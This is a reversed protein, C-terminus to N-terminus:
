RRRFHLQRPTGTGVDLIDRPAEIPAAYLGNMVQRLFFHQMDLRNLDRDDSPLMYAADTHYRRNGLWLFRSGSGTQAITSAAARRKRGFWLFPM